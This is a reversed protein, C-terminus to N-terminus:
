GSAASTRGPSPAGSTGSCSPSSSREPFPAATSRWSRVKPASRTRTCRMRSWSRAPARSKDLRERLRRNEKSLARRDLHLQVRQRLEQMKVPKTLYDDAGEQLANVADEVDAFATVLLFPLDPRESRVRGLLEYGDMGPMRVDSVVVDVPEASRIRDLGEEASAFPEVRYGVRQLARAMADRSGDDDDVLVIVPEV